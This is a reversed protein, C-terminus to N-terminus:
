DLFLIQHDRCDRAVGAALERLLDPGSKALFYFGPFAREQLGKDPYLVTSLQDAHRGLEESRRLLARAARARLQSLQHLIKKEARTSSKALTPDLLLLQERLQALRGTVEATADEFSADIQTPLKRGAISERLHERGAFADKVELGYRELLKKWRPEVITASLRYSVPTSYGVLAQELPGAQALYAIEAPGGIYVVSPLLFNQMSTRLLANPSFEQPVRELEALLESATLKREGIAFGNDNGNRRVATRRGDQLGFLFATAATVKVQQHYGSAELRRGREMVARNLESAHRVVGTFVPQAMRHLAPDNPDIILLGQEKFWSTFLRGFASAFTQGPVYAARLADLANSPGLVEAIRDLASSVSADLEIRGVPAGEVGKGRVQLKELAAQQPQPLLVNDIEALDHDESALWFVPVCDQGAHAFEEALKIATVAKYVSYVPGGLLNVQHGTVVAFAGSRFRALNKRAPEGWGFEANQRELVDAVASRRSPEYSNAVKTFIESSVEAPLFPKLKEPHYLFDLFLRTTHPIDNFGICERYV